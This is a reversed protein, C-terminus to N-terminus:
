AESKARYDRFVWRRLEEFLAERDADSFKCHDALGRLSDRVSQVTGITEPQGWVGYRRVPAVVRGDLLIECTKGFAPGNKPQKALMALVILGTTTGMSARTARWQWTRGPDFVDLNSSFQPM